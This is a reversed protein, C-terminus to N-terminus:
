ARSSTWCCGQGGGVLLWYCSIASMGLIDVDIFNNTFISFFHIKVSFFFVKQGVWYYSSHHSISTFLYHSRSSRLFILSLEPLRLGYITFGHGVWRQPKDNNSTTYLSLETSCNQTTTRFLVKKLHIARICLPKFSRCIWFQSFGNTTPPSFLFCVIWDWATPSSVAWTSVQHNLTLMSSSELM